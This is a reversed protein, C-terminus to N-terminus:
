VFLVVPRNEVLKKLKKLEVSNLNEMLRQMDEQPKYILIIIIIFNLGSQTAHKPNM